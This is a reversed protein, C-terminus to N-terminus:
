LVMATHLPLVLPAEFQDESAGRAPVDLPTVYFCQEQLQARFDGFSLAATHSNDQKAFNSDKVARM